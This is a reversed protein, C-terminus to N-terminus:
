ETMRNGEIQSDGYHVIRVLENPADKQLSAFFKDLVYEKGSPFQIDKNLKKPVIKEPKSAVKEGDALNEVSDPTALDSSASELSDLKGELEKLASMDITKQRTPLLDQFTFIKFKLGDGLSIEQPSMLMVLGAMLAVYGLLMLIRAPKVM